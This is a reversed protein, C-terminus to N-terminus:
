ESIQAQLDLLDQKLTEQAFTRLQLMENKCLVLQERARTFEQGSDADSNGCIGQKSNEIGNAFANYYRDANQIMNSYETLDAELQTTDYGNAKLQLMLSNMHEYMNQFANMYKEKNQNYQATVLGVKATVDTCKQSSNGQGNSTTVSNTSSSQQNSNEAFVVGSSIVLLAIAVLLTTKKM